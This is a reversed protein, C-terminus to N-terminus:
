GRRKLAKVERELTEVSDKLSAFMKSAQAVLRELDRIRKHSEELAESVAIAQQTNQDRLLRVAKEIPTRTLAM